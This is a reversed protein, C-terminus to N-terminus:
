EKTAGVLVVTPDWAANNSSNRDSENAVIALNTVGPWAASGAEVVLGIRSSAGPEIRVPSRCTVVQDAASCVWDSGTATIWTTGRPLTDTVTIMGSTATLGVNTMTLNYLGEDGVTFHADHSATIALDPAGLPVVAVPTTRIATWEEGLQDPGGGWAWVTGDRKVALASGNGAAIAKVDSLSPVQIPAGLQGNDNRNWIWVTGDRKLAMSYANTSVAIATVDNVGTRQRPMARGSWEWVTGDRKLATAIDGGAIAVIGTLGNVQGPLWVREPDWWDDEWVSWLWVSGDDELALNGFSYSYYGAVAVVASLGAVQVPKRPYVPDGWGEWVTGDGRLAVRSVAVIDDLGEIQAPASESPSPM